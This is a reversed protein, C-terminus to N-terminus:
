RQQPVGPYLAFAVEGIEIEDGPEFGEAELAKISAWRKLREEIYALAEANELDHRGVLREVAPGEVRFSSDAPASSAGATAGGAPVGRARRLECRSTRREPAAPGAGLPLDRAAAGDLGRRDRRSRSCWRTRTAASRSRARWATWEADLGAGRGARRAAPRDQEAGRPLAAGGARRRLARARRARHRVRGVSGVGDVPAVDVLHVLLSTREVHALFEHGLGAGDAAGEILGPIDALM